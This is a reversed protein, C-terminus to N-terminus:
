HMSRHGYSVDLWCSSTTVDCIKMKCVVYIRFNDTQIFYEGSIVHVKILYFFFFWVWSLFIFFPKWALYFDIILFKFTTLRNFYRPEIGFNYYNFIQRGHIWTSFLKRYNRLHKHNIETEYEQINQWYNKGAHSQLIIFCNASFKNIQM